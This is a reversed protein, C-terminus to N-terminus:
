KDYNALLASDRCELPTVGITIRDHYQRVGVGWVHTASRQLEFRGFVVRGWFTEFEAM